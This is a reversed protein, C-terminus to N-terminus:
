STPSFLRRNDTKAGDVIAGGVEVRSATNWGKDAGGVALANYTSWSQCRSTCGCDMPSLLPLPQHAIRKLMRGTQYLTSALCPLTDTAVAPWNTPTTWKLTRWRIWISWCCSIRNRQRWTITLVLVCVSEYCETGWVLIGAISLLGIVEKQTGLTSGHERMGYFCLM